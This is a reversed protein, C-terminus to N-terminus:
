QLIFRFYKKNKRLLKLNQKIKYLRYKLLMKGIVANKISFRKVQFYYMTILM